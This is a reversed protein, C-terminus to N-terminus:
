TIPNLLLTLGELPVPTVPTGGLMYLNVSQISCLASCHIVCYSDRSCCKEHAGCNSEKNKIGLAAEQM